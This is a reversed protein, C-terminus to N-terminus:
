HLSFAAKAPIKPEPEPKPPPNRALKKAEDAALQEASARAGAQLLETIEGRYQNLERRLELPVLEPRRLVLGDIDSLELGGAYRQNVAIVLTEARARRRTEEDATGILKESLREIVGTM